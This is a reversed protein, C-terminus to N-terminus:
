LFGGPQGLLFKVEHDQFWGLLYKTDTIRRGRLQERRHVTPEWPIYMWNPKRIKKDIAIIEARSYSSASILYKEM